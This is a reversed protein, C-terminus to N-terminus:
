HLLGALLPGGSHAARYVKCQAILRNASTKLTDVMLADLDVYIRTAETQEKMEGIRKVEAQLKGKATDIDAGAKNVMGTMTSYVKEVKAFGEKLQPIMQGELVGAAISYAIILGLPGAVAGVAAGGYAEKRLKAVQADFYSSGQDFDSKLQANLTILKGAAGNFSQSSQQLSKQAAEMKTVGDGLVKLLISKQATANNANFNDFLTVYGTLLEASLGCWEFVSQTAALYNDQATLLLTKVDGVLAGAQTSYDKQYKGLSEVTQEFTKWPIVQDLVQNYLALAQEGADMADKALTIADKPNTM